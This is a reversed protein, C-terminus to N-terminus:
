AALQLERRRLRHAVLGFGMLMMAWTAPEPVAPTITGIGVASFDETRGGVPDIAQFRVAFSSLTVSTAPGSLTFTLNFTTDKGIELGLNGNGAGACSGGKDKAIACFDLKGVQPMNKGNDFAPFVTSTTTVKTFTSSMDFGYGTLNVNTFLAPNTTNELNVTFTITNGAFSVLKFDAEATVQSKNAFNDDSVAVYNVTFTTGVDAPDLTIQTIAASAAQSLLLGGATTMGFVLQRLTGRM